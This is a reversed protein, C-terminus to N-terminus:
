KKKELGELKKELEETKRQLAEVKKWAEINQAPTTQLAHIRGIADEAPKAAANSSQAAIASLAPIARLDGLEGLASAAATRVAKHTFTLHQRLYDLVADNKTGRALSGLATLASGRERAPFQGSKLADLIAPVADTRYQERLTRIAASAIMGQYSPRQLFPLLDEQPWAAFSNVISAVIMPNKEEATMKVLAAHAEPHLISALATAVANRVREDPHATLSILATRASDGPVRSLAEVAESKIRHHPDAAVIGALQKVTAEDRKKGLQQVALMRGIIDSQLQQELMDGAPTWIVKALVTMDPDVRLLVPQSPLTFTFDERAKSVAATFDHTQVKGDAGKVTFRLPLPVSFFLVKEDVKHTQQVTVRATKADANWAYEITLEPAGGHHVWQDFYQDFSRGSVEEFTEQLDDSTVNSDRHRRIYETIAKRYLEPGLQCRLMHLVWAGRPYARNDFQQMPESYDRWVMPRTDGSGLVKQAEGWLSLMMGDRGHRVEEYLVTYYSAFGENLWLHSWDRCTILDGFWQHAMEHADLRHLTDLDGVEAPFLAAAANFTCSTNEMGGALFDHCYVSFYKAWPFPTALEKEYFDMIAQTDRFALAAQDKESPPVLVALPTRGGQGDLRHFYGAALAILYNVHPQEQKWHWRILPSDKDRERSILKGNSIVEMGDPAHCVVETTFRDNPYDYCPFWYRHFEAEGQTWCQTDGQPYGMEPTRFLMGHEPTARYRVTVTAEAGAALPEAFTIILKEKTAEHGSVAVGAAGVSEITLDMADLELRKLGGAIPSFSITVEGSVSRRTFDPTVDLALHKIDVLRDRAYKRGPVPNVGPPMLGGKECRGLYDTEAIATFPLLFLLLLTRM